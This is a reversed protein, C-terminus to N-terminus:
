SKLGVPPYISNCDSIGFYKFFYSNFFRKFLSIKDNKGNNIFYGVTIEADTGSERAQICLINKRNLEFVIDDLNGFREDKLYIGTLVGNELYQILYSSFIIAEFSHGTAVNDDGSASM